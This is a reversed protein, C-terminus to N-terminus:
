WTRGPVVSGTWHAIPFHIRSSQRIVGLTDLIIKKAADIASPAPKRDMPMTAGITSSPGVVRRGRTRLLDEHGLKLRALDHDHIIQRRM